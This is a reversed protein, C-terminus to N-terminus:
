HCEQEGENQAGGERWMQRDETGKSIQLETGVCLAKLEENWGSRPGLTADEATQVVEGVEGSEWLAMNVWLKRYKTQM